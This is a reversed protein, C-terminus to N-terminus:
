LLSFHEEGPNDIGIQTVGGAQRRAIFILANIDVAWGRPNGRQFVSPLLVAVVARTASRRVPSVVIFVEVFHKDGDFLTKGIGCAVM